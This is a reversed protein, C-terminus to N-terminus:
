SAPSKHSKRYLKEANRLVREMEKPALSTRDLRYLHHATDNAIAFPTEEELAKNLSALDIGDQSIWYSYYVDEIKAM